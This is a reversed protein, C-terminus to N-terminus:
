QSLIWGGNIIDPQMTYAGFASSLIASAQGDIKETGAPLITIPNASAFGGIDVIVTTPMAAPGPIAGAGAANQKASPLQITVAGNVNVTIVTNGLQVITTGPTTIPLITTVPAEFWGLSPGLYTRQKTRFTGGQDLDIQSGM